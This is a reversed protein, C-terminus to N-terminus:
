GRQRNLFAQIVEERTKGFKNQNHTIDAESLGAPVPTLGGATAPVNNDVPGGFQNDSLIPTRAQNLASEAGQFISPRGMRTLAFNLNEFYKTDYEDDPTEDNTQANTLQLAITSAAKFAATKDKQTGKQAAPAVSAVQKGTPDFRQQGQGLTFGPQPEPPFLGAAQEPTPTQAQPGVIRLSGPEAEVLHGRTQRRIPEGGPGTAAAPGTAALLEGRQLEPLGQGQPRPPILQEIPTLNPDIASLSSYISLKIQPSVNPDALAELMQKIKQQSQPDTQAQQEAELSARSPLHVVSDESGGGVLPGFRRIPEDEILPVTAAM